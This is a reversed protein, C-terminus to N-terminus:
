LTGFSAALTGMILAWGDLPPGARWTAVAIAAYLSAAILAAIGAPQARAPPRTGWVADVISPASM